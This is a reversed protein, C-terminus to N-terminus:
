KNSDCKEQSNSTQELVVNTLDNVQFIGNDKKKKKTKGKELLSYFNYSGLVNLLVCFYVNSYFYQQKILVANQNKM